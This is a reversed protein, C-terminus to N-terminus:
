GALHRRAVIKLAIKAKLKSPHESELDADVSPKKSSPPWENNAVLSTERILLCKSAPMVTLSM